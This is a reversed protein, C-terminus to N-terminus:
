SLKCRVPTPLCTIPVQRLFSGGSHSAELQCAIRHDGHGDAMLTKLTQGSFTPLPRRARAASEIQLVCQWSCYNTQVQSVSCLNCCQPINALAYIVLSCCRYLFTSLLFSFVHRWLFLILPRFLSWNKPPKLGVQLYQQLSSTTTIATYISMQEEWEVHTLQYLVPTTCEVRDACHGRSKSPHNSIELESQM